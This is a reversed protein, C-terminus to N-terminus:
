LVRVDQESKPLHVIGQAQWAFRARFTWVHDTHPTNQANQSRFTSRAVNAHLMVVTKGRGPTFFTVYMKPTGNHLTEPGQSYVVYIWM